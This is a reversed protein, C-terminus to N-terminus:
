NKEVEADEIEPTEELFNFGFQEPNNRWDDITMEHTRDIKAQIKRIKKGATSFEAKLRKLEANERDLIEQKQKLFDQAGLFHDALIRFCEMRYKSVSERAEPKVNKPNITLLWGFIFEVPLCTMERERKDAGVMRSLVVSSGMDEDDKIKSYQSPYNIGLAECIPKIPVLRSENEALALIEVNNVTTITKTNM